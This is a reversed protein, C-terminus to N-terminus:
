NETYIIKHVKNKFYIYTGNPGQSLLVAICHVHAFSNKKIPLIIAKCHQAEATCCLSDATYVYIYTYVYIGERQLRVGVAGVGWGGRKTKVSCLASSGTSYLLKGNHIKIM